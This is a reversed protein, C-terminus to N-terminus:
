ISFVVLKSVHIWQYKPYLEVHLNLCSCHIRSGSGPPHFYIYIYIWIISNHCEKGQFSPTNKQPIIPNRMKGIAMYLQWLDGSFASPDGKCFTRFIHRPLFWFISTVQFYPSFMPAFILSCMASTSILMSHNM